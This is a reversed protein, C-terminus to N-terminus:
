PTAYIMIACFESFRTAYGSPPLRMRQGDRTSKEPGTGLAKRPPASTLRGVLEIWIWQVWILQTNLLKM